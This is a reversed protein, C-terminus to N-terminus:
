PLEHLVLEGASFFAEIVMRYDRKSPIYPGWNGTLTMSSFVMASQGNPVFNVASCFWSSIKELVYVYQGVNPSGEDLKIFWRGKEPIM